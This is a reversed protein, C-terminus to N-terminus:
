IDEDEDAAGENGGDQANDGQHDAGDLGAFLQASRVM